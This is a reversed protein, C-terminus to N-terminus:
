VNRRILIVKAKRMLQGNIFVAPEITEKIFINDVECEIDISSSELLLVDLNLGENYKLNDYERVEINKKDLYKKLKEIYYNLSNINEKNLNPSIKLIRNRLKWIDLSLNIIDENEERKLFVPDKVEKKNLIGKTNLITDRRQTFYSLLMIIVILLLIIAFSIIINKNIDKTDLNNILLLIFM